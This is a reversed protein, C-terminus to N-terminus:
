NFVIFVWIRREGDLQIFEQIYKMSKGPISVM